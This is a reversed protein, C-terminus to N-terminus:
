RSWLLLSKSFAFLALMKSVQQEITHKYINILNLQVFNSTYLLEIIHTSRAIGTQM